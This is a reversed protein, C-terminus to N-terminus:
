NSTITELLYSKNDYVLYLNETSGTDLYMCLLTHLPSKIMYINEYQCYLLITSHTYYNKKCLYTLQKQGLKCNKILSCKTVTAQHKHTLTNTNTHTHTHMYMTLYM